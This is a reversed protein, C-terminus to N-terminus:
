NNRFLCSLFRGFISKIYYNTNEYSQTKMKIPKNKVRNLYVQADNVVDKNWSQYDMLHGFIFHCYKDCLTILNTPDLERDPNVHFPEIHHVEPSKVSGCAACSPHNRLHESRVQRWKPSRDSYKNFPNFM